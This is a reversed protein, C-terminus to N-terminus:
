SYIREKGKRELLINAYTYTQRYAIQTIPDASKEFTKRLWIAVERHGHLCAHIYLKQFIYAWDVEISTDQFSFWFEQLGELNASDKTLFEKAGKLINKEM